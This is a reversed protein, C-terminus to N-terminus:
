RLALFQRSKSAFLCGGDVCRPPGRRFPCCALATTFDVAGAVWRLVSWPKTGGTGHMHCALWPVASPDRLSPRPLAVVLIAM